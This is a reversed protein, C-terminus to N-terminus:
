TCITHRRKHTYIAEGTNQTMAALHFSYIDKGMEQRRGRESGREGRHVGAIKEGGKRKM